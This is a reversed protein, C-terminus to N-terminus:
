GIDISGRSILVAAGGVRAAIVNGRQKIAKVELRSPRGMEVGQHVVWHADGDRLRTRVGLYGALAAAAGGTAPDEAVGLGPAFMRARLDARGLGAAPDDTDFTFLYVEDFGL